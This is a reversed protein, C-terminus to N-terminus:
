ATVERGGAFGAGPRRDARARLSRAAVAAARSLREQQEALALAGADTLEFYRRLRGDVAEESAMRVLGEGTLRELAGYLTAPRLEVRGGSLESIAAMLAYGHQRGAALAALLYV